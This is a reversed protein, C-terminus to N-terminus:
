ALRSLAASQDRSFVIEVRPRREVPSVATSRGTGPSESRCQSASSARGHDFCWGARRTRVVSPAASPPVVCFVARRGRGVEIPLRPGRIPDTLVERGLVRERNGVSIENLGGEAFLERGVSHRGRSGVSLRLWRMANAFTWSETVITVFELSASREPANLRKPKGATGLVQHHRGPCLRTSLAGCHPPALKLVCWAGELSM